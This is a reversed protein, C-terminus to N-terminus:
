KIFVFLQKVKKRYSAEIDLIYDNVTKQYSIKAANGVSRLESHMEDEINRVTPPEKESFEEPRRQYPMKRAIDNNWAKKRKEYAEHEERTEEIKPGYKLLIEAEELMIRRTEDLYRKQIPNTEDIMDSIALFDEELVKVFRDYAKKNESSFLIGILTPMSSEIKDFLLAEKVRFVLVRLNEFESKLKEKEIEAQAMRRSVSVTIIIAAVTGIAGLVSGYYELVDKAGWFTCYGNVCKYSENILIPVGIILLLLIAACIWALRWRKM